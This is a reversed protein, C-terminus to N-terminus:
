RHRARYEDIKSKPVDLIYCYPSAGGPRSYASRAGCRSGNRARDDPCACPHGRAYYAARSDRVIIEAIQNDTVAQAFGASPCVLIFALLLGRKM